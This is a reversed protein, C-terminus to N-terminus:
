LLDPFPKLGLLGRIEEATHCDGRNMGPCLVAAANWAEESALLAPWFPFLRCQLPRVPYISCRGSVADYFICDGNSREKLSLARWRATVYRRRFEETALSLFASM